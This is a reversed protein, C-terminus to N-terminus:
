NLISFFSFDAISLLFFRLSDPNQRTIVVFNLTANWLKWYGFLLDQSENGSINRTVQPVSDHPTRCNQVVHLAAI